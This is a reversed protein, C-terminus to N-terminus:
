NLRLEALIQEAVEAPDDALHLSRRQDNVASGIMNMQEANSWGLGSRFDGTHDFRVGGLHTRAFHLESKAHCVPYPTNLTLSDFTAATVFYM